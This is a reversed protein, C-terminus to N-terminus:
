LAMDTTARASAFSLRTILSQSVSTSTDGGQIQAYDIWYQSHLCRHARRRLSHLACPYPPGLSGGQGDRVVKFTAMCIYFSLRRCFASHIGPSHDLHTILVTTHSASDFNCYKGLPIKSSALSPTGALLLLLYFLWLPVGCGVPWEEDLWIDASLPYRAWGRQYESDRRSLYLVKMGDSTVTLVGACTQCAHSPM